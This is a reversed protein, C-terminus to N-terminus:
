RMLHLPHSMMTTNRFVIEGRDVTGSLGENKDGAARMKRKGTENQM